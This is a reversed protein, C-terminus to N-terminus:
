AAKVEMGKEDKTVYLAAVKGQAERKDSPLGQAYLGMTIVPSAHRMLEQTVRMPAGSAHLETAYTRRFTHWGIKKSIGVRLAAPKLHRKLLIDPWYPKRGLSQPSAFVWDEGGAYPASSKWNRFVGDLADDIPLPKQSGATKTNGEVQDVLSRVVRLKRAELDVDEWKLGFLEGRRLGTMLAVLVLTRSPEQLEAVLSVAEQVSLIEPESLRKASQRVSHIPNLQSWGNEIAHRYLASMVNRTKAKTAPAFTLSKLWAKVAPAKVHDLRYSGWAPTILTDLHHEYVARTSHTKEGDDALETAKYHSALQAVTMPTVAQSTVANIDLKLNDIARLAASQTSLELKTGVVEKRRVRSGDIATERWRYVWVDPGKKRKEITLSGNQYRERKLKM